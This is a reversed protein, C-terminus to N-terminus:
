LPCQLRIIHEGHSVSKCHLLLCLYSIIILLYQIIEVHNFSCKFNYLPLIKFIDFVDFIYFIDHNNKINNM